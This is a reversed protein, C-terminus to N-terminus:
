GTKLYGGSLLRLVARSTDLDSAASKDLVTGFIPDNLAVQFTDLELPSLDRLPPLLPHPVALRATLDPLQSRLHNHEDLQRLGEMLLEHVALDIEGPIPSEDAPELEFTGQTWALMRYACKLPGVTVLGDIAVHVITGKRMRMRGTGQASHVVLVGTKKSTGLLQLVDPLPIEEIAGTMTRAQTRGLSDDNPRRRPNAPAQDAYVVKFISSGILVRDGEKLDCRKIKEGNVFTGNTSGLDEITIRQGDFTIRAHRRSVMDESLVIQVDGSRGVLMEGSDTLAYESGQFKGSIFRLALPRATTM